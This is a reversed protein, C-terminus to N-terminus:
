NELRLLSKQIIKHSTKKEQKSATDTYHIFVACLVCSCELSGYMYRKNYLLM